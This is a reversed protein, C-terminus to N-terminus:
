RGRVKKYIKILGRYWRYSWLKDSILELKPNRMDYRYERRYLTCEWKYKEQMGLFARTILEKTIEINDNLHQANEVKQKDPNSAVDKIESEMTEIMQKTTFGSLIRNRCNDKYDSKNNLIDNIAVTFDNIEDQNYECNYIDEEKQRCKIIKGCEDNILEKQGGVDNSVVPVGMSLSEYSTLALGEKLSCNVTVDCASYFEESNEISGCFHILQSIELKEAKRKMESLLNGDGAVIVEFDDRKSSLEKIIDLFLMPRKQETIRCIFGIVNDKVIGFKERLFDKNYKDPDFKEEDVGIYVTKITDSKRNFHNILINKSNENCTYTRDIVSAVSSSDRSYGGNRNYWEEMHIYDVIPIAPNKAKIYPLMCYGIESNTNLIININNQKIIHNIFNPWYREDLFSTLDYVTAYKRFKYQSDRIAPETSIVTISYKDKDLGSIVDLNFKDAGGMVMWPVIMLINIKSKTTDDVCEDTSIVDEIEEWNYTSRPYEVPKVESKITKATENIIELSQKKNEISKALEGNKKRRYWEGYFSMHVPFKGKAILKLWFNWDENVAKEKIGYGNVEFFDEKRIVAASILDNRKKLIESNFPRRWTYELAGFGVSDAYAWSADPNTELTWYACELFTEDFLDDADIFALYKTDKSAKSAGYDRTAALGENEKHYVTIREDLKEIKELLHISKSDNSGDDIILLEFYPYTQNLISNVTQMIYEKDNYFPIIVSIESKEYLRMIKKLEQGPQNNYDFRDM